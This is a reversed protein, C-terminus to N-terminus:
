LLEGLLKLAEAELANGHGDEGLARPVCQVLRAVQAVVNDAQVPHLLGSISDLDTAAAFNGELTVSVGTNQVAGLSGNRRGDLVHNLTEPDAVLSPNGVEAM